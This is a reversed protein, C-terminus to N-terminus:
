PSFSWGPPPPDCLELMRTRMAGLPGAYAPDRARNDLQYPDASLEYLEEEQTAYRAYMFDKTRVGCYPPVKAINAVDGAGSHEILFDTRWGEATGLLNRGEVPTPPTIGVATAVTAPVDLNLALRGDKASSGAVDYRMVFPLRISEEYPVMKSGWRHEGWLFGNDSMFVVLTNSLRGTDSLAALIGKVADDVALLSRFQKKRFEEMNAKREGDMPSMRRIYEPKDGVDETVSPPNWSKLNSFRTAYRPPPTAPAHPAVPAFYLFLPQSPEVSRVFASAERGLRDTQYVGPVRVTGQDSVHYNTFSFVKSTLVYWRDWGPPIYSANADVYGNLYKGVLATRYGSADLWTALTSSDDFAAFGGHPGTNAYVGTSHSPLGTLISARSPCCLPDVAFANTFTTGKGVLESRVTPMAWLTGTRQDDTLVILVNPRQTDQGRSQQPFVVVAGLLGLTLLTTVLRM